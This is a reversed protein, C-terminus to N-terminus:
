KNCLIVVVVVRVVYSPIVMLFGGISAGTAVTAAAACRNGVIAAEAETLSFTSVGGMRGGTTTGAFVFVFSVCTPSTDVFPFPM